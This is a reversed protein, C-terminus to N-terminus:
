SSSGCSFKVLKISIQLMNEKEFMICSSIVNINNQKVECSWTLFHCMAKIFSIHYRPILHYLFKHFYMKWFTLICVFFFFVFCFLSSIYCIKFLLISLVLHHTSSTEFNPAFNGVCHDELIHAYPFIRYHVWYFCEVLLHHPLLQFMLDLSYTWCLPLSYGLNLRLFYLPILRCHIYIWILCLSFHLLSFQCHRM